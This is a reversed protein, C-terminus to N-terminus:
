SLDFSLSIEEKKQELEQKPQQGLDQGVQLTSNMLEIITDIRQDVQMVLIEIHRVIEQITLEGSERLLKERLAEKTFQTYDDANVKWEILDKDSAKFAVGLYRDNGRRDERKM